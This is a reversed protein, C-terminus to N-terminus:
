YANLRNMVGRLGFFTFIIAIAYDKIVFSIYPSYSYLTILNNISATGTVQVLSILPIIIFYVLTVITLSVITIIKGINRDTLGKYQYGKLAGIGIIFAFYSSMMGGYIYLLIWPISAILGGIFAGIIGKTYNRGM